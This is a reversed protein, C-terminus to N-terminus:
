DSRRIALILAARRVSFHHSVNLLGPAATPLQATALATVALRCIDHGFTRYRENSTAMGGIHIRYLVDTFVTTLTNINVAALSPPAPPYDTPFSICMADINRWNPRPGLIEAMWDRHEDAVSPAESGYVLGQADVAPPGM